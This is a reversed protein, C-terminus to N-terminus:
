EARLAFATRISAAWGAPGLAGAVAIVPGALALLVLQWTAYVSVLPAPYGSNAAHAMVPVVGHHLYVGAPIAAIGAVFGTFTVSCVIMALTQRPTMGISKFVGIDHARERIQLAVTNLVGFGAVVTILITLMAILALV